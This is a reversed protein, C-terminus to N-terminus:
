ITWELNIMQQQFDKYTNNNRFSTLWKLTQEKDEKKIFKHKLLIKTVAEPEPILMSIITSFAYDKLRDEVETTKNALYEKRLAEGESNDVDSLEKDLLMLAKSVIKPDLNSEM